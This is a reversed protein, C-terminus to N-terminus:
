SDRQSFEKDGWNGAPLTVRVTTARGGSEIALQGGIHKVREQMSSIGVGVEFPLTGGSKAHGTDSIELFVEDANRDLRIKAQTSGSHRQINTLSEQMVRFLALEVDPKLRGFSTSVELDVRIGTRKAFGDVYLRISTELGAEDLMPPHLVYSLTRIEQIAQDALAESESILKRVAPSSPSISSYIQGLALKLAALNQGTSDHLDRAISRREEDQSRLLDGSLRRLKEEAQKLDEIDISSGYWKVLNGQENRLPATRILFWRYEGDARRLRMEDESPRGAAMDALWKEMVRPLDEPHVARTPEEIQEELSIGSYDLSRQNVFDVAGDPRISWAMTPITDIILRIRDEAHKREAIELKLDENARTLEATREAVRDELEKRERTFHIMVMAFVLFVTDYLLRSVTNIEPEFVYSRLLAALLTALIGPEPGGYRFTIAIATLAFATLPQHLHFHLFTRALVQAIAVSVLALGYRLGVSAAPRALWKAKGPHGM